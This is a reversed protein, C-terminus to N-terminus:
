KMHIAVTGETVAPAAVGLHAGNKAVWDRAKAVSEDAGAKTECLTVTVGGEATAIAAYSVFGKISHFIAEVEPQRQVLLAILEKAGKGSYTRMVAHM